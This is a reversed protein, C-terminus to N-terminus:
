GGDGKEAFFLHPKSGYNNIGYLYAAIIDFM